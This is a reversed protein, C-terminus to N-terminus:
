PNMDARGEHPYGSGRKTKVSQAQDKENWVGKRTCFMPRKELISFSVGINRNIVSDSHSVPSAGISM